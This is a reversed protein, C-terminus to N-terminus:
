KIYISNKKVKNTLFDQFLIVTELFFYFFVACSNGASIIFWLKLIIESPDHPDLMHIYIHTYLYIHKKNHERILTTIYANRVYQETKRIAPHTKLRQKSTGAFWRQWIPHWIPHRVESLTEPILWTLITCYLGRSSGWPLRWGHNTITQKRCIRYWWRLRGTRTSWYNGAPPHPPTRLFMPAWWLLSWSKMQETEPLYM